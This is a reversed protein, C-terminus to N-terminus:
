NNKLNYFKERLEKETVNGMAFFKGNILIGPSQMIGHEIILQQGQESGADIEKLRIDPYDKKLNEITEKIDACHGCDDPSVLIVDIM